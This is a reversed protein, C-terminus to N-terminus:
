LSEVAWKSFKAKFSGVPKVHSTSINMYSRCATVTNPQDYCYPPLVFGFGVECTIMTKRCATDSPTRVRYYLLGTLDDVKRDAVIRLVLEDDAFIIDISSDSQHGTFSKMRAGWFGFQDEFSFLVEGSIEPERTKLISLQLLADGVLPPFVNHAMAKLALYSVRDTIQVAVARSLDPIREDVDPSPVPLPTPTGTNVPTPTPIPNSNPVTDGCATLWLAVLLPPACRTWKLM